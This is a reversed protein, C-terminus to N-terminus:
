ITSDAFREILDTLRNKLQDDNFFSDVCWQMAEKESVQKVSIKRQEMQEVWERDDPMTYRANKPLPIWKEEKLYYQDRSRYLRDTFETTSNFYGGTQEIEQAEPELNISTNNQM